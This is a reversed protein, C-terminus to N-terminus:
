VSVWGGCGSGGAGPDYRGSPPLGPYRTTSGRTGPRGVTVSSSGCGGPHTQAAAGEAGRRGRLSQQCPRPPLRPSDSDTQGDTRSSGTGPRCGLPSWVRVWQLRAGGTRPVGGGRCRASRPSPLAVLRRPGRNAFVPAMQWTPKSGKAEVFLCRGSTSLASSGLLDGSVVRASGM